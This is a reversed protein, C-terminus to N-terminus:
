SWKGINHKWTNMRGQKGGQRKSRYAGVIISRDKANSKRLRLAHEILQAARDVPLGNFADCKRTVLPSKIDNMPSLLWAISDMKKLHPLFHTTARNSASTDDDQPIFFDQLLRYDRDITLNLDENINRSPLALFMDLYADVVKACTQQKLKDFMFKNALLEKWDGFADDVTAILDKVRAKDSKGLWEATFIKGLGNQPDKVFTTVILELFIKSVTDFQKITKDFLNNLEDKDMVNLNRSDDMEEGDDPFVVGQQREVKMILEDFNNVFAFLHEEELNYAMAGGSIGASYTKILGLFLAVVRVFQRGVLNNLADDILFNSFSFLDQPGHTRPCGDDKFM